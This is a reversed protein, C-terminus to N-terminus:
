NGSSALAAEVAEKIDEYTPVYGPSVVIGNVFVSPTGTVKLEDGLVIEENIVDKYRNEQYCDSFADMDLNLEEAFALLRKKSFENPVSYFNAFLMTKYDWFRNQEAACMAAIASRDSDKVASANDLFPRQHFYYYVDGTSVINQIVEPEVSESYTKCAICKFDEFVEIKVAAGPNGLSTGEEMPYTTPTIKVYDGVPRFAERVSSGVLLGVVLLIVAAAGIIVLLRQQRAKRKRQERLKQRKSVQESKKKSM